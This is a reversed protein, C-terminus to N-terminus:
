PSKGQAIFIALFGHRTLKLSLKLPNVWSYFITHPDKWNAVRTFTSWAPNLFFLVLPGKSIWKPNKPRVWGWRQKKQLPKINQSM